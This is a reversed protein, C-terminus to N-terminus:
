PNERLLRRCLIELQKYFDPYGAKSIRVSGQISLLVPKARNM